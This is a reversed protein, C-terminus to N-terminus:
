FSSLCINQIQDILPNKAESLIVIRGQGPFTEPLKQAQRPVIIGRDARKLSMGPRPDPGLYGILDFM